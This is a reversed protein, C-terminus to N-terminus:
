TVCHVHMAQQALRDLDELAGVEAERGGVEDDVTDGDDGEQFDRFPARGGGWGRQQRM